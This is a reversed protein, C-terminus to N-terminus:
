TSSLLVSNEGIEADRVEGRAGRTGRMGDGDEDRMWSLLLRTEEDPVVGAGVGIEDLGVFRALGVVAGCGCGGM